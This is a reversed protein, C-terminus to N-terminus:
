WVAATIDVFNWIRNYIYIYLASCVCNSHLIIAFSSVLINLKSDRIKSSWLYITHHWQQIVYKAENFHTKQM